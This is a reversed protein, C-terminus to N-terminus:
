RRLGTIGKLGELFLKYAASGGIGSLANEMDATNRMGPVRASEIMSRAIAERLNYPQAQLSFESAQQLAHRQANNLHAQSEEKNATHEMIKLEAASRKLNQTLERHRQASAIGPTAVDGMTASVGGPSSSSREYALGPNLGAARYDAVSRQVATSSMRESFNMADQAMQRNQRNAYGAGGASLIGAVATGLWDSM